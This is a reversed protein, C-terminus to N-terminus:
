ESGIGDLTATLVKKAIKVATRRKKAAPTMMLLLSLEPIGRTKKRSLISVHAYTYSVNSRVYSLPHLVHFFDTAFNFAAIVELHLTNLGIVTIPDFDLSVLVFEFFVHGAAATTGKTPHVVM